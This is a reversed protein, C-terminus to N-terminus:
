RERCRMRRVDRSRGRWGDRELLQGETIATALARHAQDLRVDSAQDAASASLQPMLRRGIQEYLSRSAEAGRVSAAIAAHFALDARVFTEAPVGLRSASREGALFSLDMLMRPLQGGKTGRATRAALVAMPEDIAARIGALEFPTAELSAFILETAISRPRSVYVGIGHSIRVFGMAALAHLSGRITTVSVGYMEALHRMSPLPRDPGLEGAVIRRRLHDTIDRMVSMRRRRTFIAADYMSTHLVGVCHRM